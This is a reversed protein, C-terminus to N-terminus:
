PQPTPEALRANQIFRRIKSRIADRDIERDRTAAVFIVLDLERIAVSTKSREIMTSQKSNETVHMNLQVHGNKMALEQLDLDEAPVDLQLMLIRDPRRVPPTAVPNQFGFREFRYWHAGIRVPVGPRITSVRRFLAYHDAPSIFDSPVRMPWRLAERTSRERTDIYAKGSYVPLISLLCAVGLRWPLQPRAARVALAALPLLALLAPWAAFVHPQRLGVVGCPSGVAYAALPFSAGAAVIHAAAQLWRSVTRDPLAFVQFLTTPIAYLAMIGTAMWLHCGPDHLVVLVPVISVVAVILCGAAAVFTRLVGYRGGLLGIALSHGFAATAYLGFPVSWMLQEPWRSWPGLDSGAYILLAPGAIVAIAAVIRTFGLNM